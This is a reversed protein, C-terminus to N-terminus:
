KNNGLLEDREHVRLRFTSESIGAAAKALRGIPEGQLYKDYLEDFNDPLKARPRGFKVGKSRAAAIEEAQRQKINERETEAQFSLVQLVLDSVFTGLLDKCYTTDLLSMDLVKIDVQQQKTLTQRLQLIEDYNRGLRDISKVIILDGAQVKSMLDLWGPRNFDEVTVVQTYPDSGQWSTSFSIRTQYPKASASGSKSQEALIAKIQAM